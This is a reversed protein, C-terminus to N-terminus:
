ERATLDDDRGAGLGQLVLEEPAVKRGHAVHEAHRDLDRQELPAGVVEAVVVEFAREVFAAEQRALVDHMRLADSAEGFDRAGAVLGFAGAHRFIRRHPRHNGRRAVVAEALIARIVLIAEDEGRPPVRHGGVHHDDIVVEKKGVDHKAVFARGFEQGGAVRHDEVFRVLEGFGRAQEEAFVDRGRLHEVQSVICAGFADDAGAVAEVQGLEAGADLFRRLVQAQCQGDLRRAEREGLEVLAAPEIVRQDAEQALKFHEGRQEFGLGRTGFTQFIAPPAGSLQHDAEAAPALVRRGIRDAPAFGVGVRQVEVGRREDDGADHLLLHAPM